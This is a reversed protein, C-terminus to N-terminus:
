DNKEMKLIINKLEIFDKNSSPEDSYKSTCAATLQKNLTFLDTIQANKLSNENLLAAIHADKSDVLAEYKKLRAETNEIITLLRESDEFKKDSPRHPLYPKLDSELFYIYKSEKYYPINHKELLKKITTSHKNYKKSVYAMHVPEESGSEFQDVLPM